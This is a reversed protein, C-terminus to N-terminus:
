QKIISFLVPKSSYLLKLESGDMLYARFVAQINNAGSPVPIESYPIFLEFDQPALKNASLKKGVGITFTKFTAVSNNINYTDNNDQIANGDKDYFFAIFYVKGEKGATNINFSPYLSLGQKASNKMVDMKTFDTISFRPVENTRDGNKPYLTEILAIDGQSLANNWDVSYGNTTWRAAIPYHMISRKDYSTGNTYTLAYQQFLNVDVTEKDWGQTKKLEDYVVQKNWPIGAVPSYHEHLLGLAHGFEHLVTRHLAAYTVFDTTDLNMTKEEQAAMNALTGILSNHGGKNDLNVRINANGIIVFEFHINAYLEWERVITKIKEQLLPSGSLFRVYLTKGNDWLYYNDALGRGSATDAIHVNNPPVEASCGYKQKPANTQKQSYSYTAVTALSLAALIPKLTKM